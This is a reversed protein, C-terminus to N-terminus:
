LPSKPILAVIGQHAQYLRLRDEAHLYDSTAITLEVLADPNAELWRLAEDIDTLAEATGGPKRACAERAGDRARAELIVVSKQQGAESMAIPWPAAVMYWRTRYPSRGTFTALHWM